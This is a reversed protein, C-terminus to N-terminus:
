LVRATWGGGPHRYPDRRILQRPSEDMCLVPFDKNYPRKYVDLVKEM